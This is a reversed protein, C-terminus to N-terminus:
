MIIAIFYQIKGALASCMTGDQHVKRPQTPLFVMVKTSLDWNDVCLGPLDIDM